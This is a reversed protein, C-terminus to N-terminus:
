WYEPSVLLGETQNVKLPMVTDIDLARMYGIVLILNTLRTSAYETKFEEDSKGGWQALAAEAEARSYVPKREGLLEPLAYYHVGGIGVVHMAGSRIRSGLQPLVNMLAHTEVYELASDIDQQSMPNPTTVLNINEGQITEIVSNKFTVSAMNDIYFALGGDEARATMTQSGGGIDWVLLNAAPINKEQMVAYYSLLSAQQKSVIRSSIGLEKKITNFYARGNRVKRFAAGGVASFQKAKHSLARQKLESLVDMGKNMIEHSFNGDYSRALDEAFDVKVSYEEVVEVISGSLTDVDAVTCKIAASGIDFAARRIIVQDQAFCSSAFLLCLIFGIFFCSRISQGM